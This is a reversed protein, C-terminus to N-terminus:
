VFFRPHRSTAPLILNAGGPAAAQSLRSLVVPHVKFGSPLTVPKTDADDDDDDDDGDQHRHQNESFSKSKFCGERVASNLRKFEASCVSPASRRVCSNTYRLSGHTEPL